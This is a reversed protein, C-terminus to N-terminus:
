LILSTETGQKIEQEEERMMLQEPADAVVAKVEAVEVM